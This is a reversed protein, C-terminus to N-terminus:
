QKSIEQWKQNLTTAKQLTEELIKRDNKLMSTVPHKNLDSNKLLAIAKAGVGICVLTAGKYLAEDSIVSVLLEAFVVSSILGTLAGLWASTDMVNKADDIAVTWTNDLEAVSEIMASIYKNIRKYVQREENFLKIFIDSNIIQDLSPIYKESDLLALLTTLESSINVLGGHIDNYVRFLLHSGNHEYNHFANIHDHMSANLLSIYDMQSYLNLKFQLFLQNLEEVNKKSNHTRSLYFIKKVENLSRNKAAVSVSLQKYADFSAIIADKEKDIGFSQVWNLISM